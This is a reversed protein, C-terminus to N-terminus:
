PPCIKSAPERLRPGGSGQRIVLRRSLHACLRTKSLPHVSHFLRCPHSIPINAAERERWLIWFPTAHNSSRTRMHVFSFLSELNKLLFMPFFAVTQEIRKRFSSTAAMTKKKLSYQQQPNNSRRFPRARSPWSPHAVLVAPLPMGERYGQASIPPHRSLNPVQVFQSQESFKLRARKVPGTQVVQVPSAM